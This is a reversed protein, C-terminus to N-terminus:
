RDSHLGLSDCVNGKLNDRKRYWPKKFVLATALSRTPNLGVRMTAWFIKNHIRREIRKIVYNDLLDEGIMFAVGATPTIVFDVLGSQKFYGENGISAESVPGIEFLTSQIASFIVTKFTQRFYRKSFGCSAPDPSNPDEQRLIFAFAAGEAPHQVYNIFLSDGDDWKWKLSGKVSRWYNRFFPGKMGARTRREFAVRKGNMLAIFLGSELFAKRWHITVGNPRELDAADVNTKDSADKVDLDVGGAQAAPTFLCVCIIFLIATGFMIRVEVRHM